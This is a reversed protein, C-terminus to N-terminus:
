SHVIQLPVPHTSVHRHSWERNSYFPFPATRLITADRQEQPIFLHTRTWRPGRSDARLAASWLLGVQVVGGFLALCVFFHWACSDHTKCFTGPVHIMPESPNPARPPMPSSLIRAVYRMPARHPQGLPIHARSKGLEAALEPQHRQNLVDRQDTTLFRAIMEACCRQREPRVSRRESNKPNHCTAGRKM